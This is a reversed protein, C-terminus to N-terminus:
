RKEINQTKGFLRQEKAEEWKQVSKQVINKLNKVQIFNKIAIKVYNLKKEEIITKPNKEYEKIREEKLEIIKKSGLPSGKLANELIKGSKFYDSEKFNGM